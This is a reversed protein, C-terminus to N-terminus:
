SLDLARGSGLGDVFRRQLRVFLAALLPFAALTALGQTLFPLLPIDHGAFM